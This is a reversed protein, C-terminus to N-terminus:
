RTAAGIFLPADVRANILERQTIRASFPVNPRNIRKSGALRKRLVNIILVKSLDSQM